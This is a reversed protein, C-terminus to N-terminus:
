LGDPLLPEGSHCLATAPSRRWVHFSLWCDADAVAALPRSSYSVRPLSLSLMPLLTGPVGVGMPAAPFLGDTDNVFRQSYSFLLLLSPRELGRFLPM